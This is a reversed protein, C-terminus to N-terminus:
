REVIPKSFLATLSALLISLRKFSDNSESMTDIVQAALTGGKIVVDSASLALQNSQRANDTNQKVTPTLGEMSSPTEELSSAQQETRSSLDMNGAAIQSIATAITDSGSRVEGVIRVLSGNMDKLAQLLQGAEYETSVIIQSTLDGSAVTQAIKVASHIPITISRATLWAILACLAIALVSTGSMIMRANEYAKAAEDNLRTELTILEGLQDTLKRQM